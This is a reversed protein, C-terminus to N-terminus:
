RGARRPDATGIRAPAGRDPRADGPGPPQARRAAARPRRRLRALPLAPPPAAADADRRRADRARPQAAPQRRARGDGPPLPHRRRDARRRRARRGRAAKRMAEIAAHLPSLDPPEPAEIVQRAAGCEIAERAVYVDLRDPLSMVRVCAGRHVQHEVLGEQVLQRIAERVASRGTGFSQSLAVERLSEGQALRGDIIAERLEALVQETMSTREVLSFRLNEVPVREAEVRRRSSSSQRCGVRLCDQTDLGSCRSCRATTWGPGTRSSTSRRRSRGCCRRPSPRRPTSPRACGSTGSAATSAGPTDTVGDTFLLLTDGPALEITTPEAEEYSDVAGLLLGTAGVKECARGARKLLPLPHGGVALTIAGGRLLGCVMTVPAIRPRQRLAGNVHSLVAAPRPDFTAATKATHRVLSTLAAAAVGMGTVDGLLVMQGGQVAFVDYFDGGVDAGRQGPRYDAAFRWGPVEPLKEPLLSAQLTRAVEARETYLSANEIATAARAALDQAFALDQERYVRGSDSFVFTMVGLVRGGTIMPVVMGSRISLARILALHEADQAAEVLLEDPVEPILQPEGTRM